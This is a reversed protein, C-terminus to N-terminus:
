ETDDPLLQHKLRLFEDHAQLYDAQRGIDMWFANNEYHGIERGAALLSQILQPMDFYTHAPIYPLIEPNMMYIGMSVLSSSQPKEVFDVVRDGKTELVGLEIPVQKQQSAITLINGRTCHYDRFLRFNLTTLVDCNLMLFPETPKPLQKLPGATGCAVSEVHYRISVGWASGDGFYTQILPALYGCAMTITTFGYHRLQKVIIELIPQEGIPLLGKPLIKTYPALRMGKGGTMIVAEM